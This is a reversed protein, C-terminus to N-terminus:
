TDCKIKAYDPDQGALWNLARLRELLLWSIELQRDEPLGHFPHGNVNFDGNIPPDFAGSAELERVFVAIRRKRSIRKPFFGGGPLRALNARWQWGSVVSKKFKVDEHQRPGTLGIVAQVSSGLLRFEFDDLQYIEWIPKWETLGLAWGIVAAGQFRLCGYIVQGEVWDEPPVKLWASEQRTLEDSAQERVWEVTRAFLEKVDRIRTGSQILTVSQSLITMATLCFMRKIQREVNPPPYEFDLVWLWTPQLKSVDVM